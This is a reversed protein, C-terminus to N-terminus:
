RKGKNNPKKKDTAGILGQEKVLLITSLKYRRSGSKTLRVPKLTNNYARLTNATFGLLTAAEAIGILRDEM